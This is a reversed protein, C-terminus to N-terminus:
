NINNIIVKNLLEIDIVPLLPECEWLLKKNVKDIEFEKVYYHKVPSKKNRVLSRLPVPLLKVSQPPMIYMLQFNISPFDTLIKEASFLANPDVLNLKLNKYIDDVCPVYESKYTWGYDICKDTYYNISWVMGNLYDQCAKTIENESFNNKYKQEWGPYGFKIKDEVYPEIYNHDNLEEEYTESKKRKSYRHVRKSRQDTIKILQSQEKEKLEQLLCLLMVSNVKKNKIINSFMKQQKIKKYCEILIDLGGERILMSPIHPLFDNGHLFCIYAYDVITKQVFSSLSCSTKEEENVLSNHLLLRMAPINIFFYEDTSSGFFTSERFLTMNEKCNLLCLFILDADLGYVAYNGKDNCSRIHEMIKHEGEGPISSPSFIVEYNKKKMCSLKKELKQMFTTGPSIMNFDSKEKQKGYKEKLNNLFEKESASRYRRKRQQDMKALPVVGDIAIYVLKTPKIFDIIKEYYNIVSNIMERETMNPNIKCAPHILCNFDLYLFDITEYICKNSLIANRHNEYIWKFYSPVGM